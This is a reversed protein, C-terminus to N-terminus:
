FGCAHKLYNPYLGLTYGGIIRILSQIATHGGEVILQFWHQKAPLLRSSSPHSEYVATAILLKQQLSCHPKHLASFADCCGLIFRSRKLSLPLFHFSQPIHKQMAVVYRDVLEQLTASPMNKQLYCLLVQGEQRLQQAAQAGITFPEINALIDRQMPVTNMHLPQVAGLVNSVTVPPSPLIALIRVGLLSLFKPVYLLFKPKAYTRLVAQILEYFRISTPGGIDYIKGFTCENQITAEVVRCTDNVTIPQFVTNGSGFVPLVPLKSLAVISGIIGSNENSYLVSPRLITYPINQAQVAVEGDLKTQGYTGRKPLRVSQTSIYIIHQVGAKKAVQLINKTGQVNVKLSDPEDNKRAACHVICDINDAIGQLSIVDTIDASVYEVGGQKQNPVSRSAARVKYGAQALYQVLAAGLYGSGGTVLIRGSM